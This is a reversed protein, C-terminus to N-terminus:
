VKLGEEEISKYLTTVMYDEEWEKKNKVIIFISDFSILEVQQHVAIRIKDVLDESTTLETLVLFDWDSEEHWDGRARSGFLILEADPDHSYVIERVKEIIFLSSEDTYIKKGRISATLEM